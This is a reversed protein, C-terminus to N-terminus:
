QDEGSHKNFPSKLPHYPSIAVTYGFGPVMNRGQDSPSAARYTSHQLPELRADKTGKLGGFAGRAAVRPMVITIISDRNGEM